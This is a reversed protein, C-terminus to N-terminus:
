QLLNQKNRNKYHHRIGQKRLFWNFSVSVVYCGKKLLKGFAIMKNVLCSYKTFAGHFEEKSGRLKANSSLSSTSHTM